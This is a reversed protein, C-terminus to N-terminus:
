HILLKRSGPTSEYFLVKFFLKSGMKWKQKLNM